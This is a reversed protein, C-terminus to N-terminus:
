SDSATFTTRKIGRNRHGLDRRIALILKLGSENLAERAPAESEILDRFSLFATLVEDEAWLTMLPTWEKCSEKLLPMDPKVGIISESIRTYLVAKEPHVQRDSQRAHFRIASSLILIGSIFVVSAIVLVPTFTDDLMGFQEVLFVLGIYAAWVFAALLLLALLTGLTNYFTNM